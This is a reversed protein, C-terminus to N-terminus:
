RVVDVTMWSNPQVLTISGISVSSFQIYIDTQAAPTFEVRMITSPVEDDLSTPGVITVQPQSVGGDPVLFDALTVNLIKLVVLTDKTSIDLGVSVTIRYTRDPQLTVIGQAQGAGSSLSILSGIIRAKDWEIHKSLGLNSSQGPSDVGIIARPDGVDLNEISIVGDAILEAIPITNVAEDYEVFDFVRDQGAGLRANIPRSIIITRSLLNRVTIAM